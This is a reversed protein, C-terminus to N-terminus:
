PKLVSLHKDLIMLIFVPLTGVYLLIQPYTDLHFYSAVERMVHFLTRTKLDVQIKLLVYVFM